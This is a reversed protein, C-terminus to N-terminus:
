RSPKTCGLSQFPHHSCTQSREEPGKSCSSTAVLCKKRLLGHSQKRSIDGQRTWEGYKWQTRSVIEGRKRKTGIVPMKSKQSRSFDLVKRSRDIDLAIALRNEYTDQDDEPTDKESFKATYLPANTGSGILGGQGDSIGEVPGTPQIIGGGVNWVAGVSAQRNHPPPHAHHPIMLVDQGSRSGRQSRAATRSDSSSILSRGHRMPRPSSVFPDPTASDRRLLKEDPTLLDPSKSLRFNRGPDQSSSRNSIYRDPSASSALHPPAANCANRLTGRGRGIGLLRPLECYPLPRSQAPYAIDLLDEVNDGDESGPPTPLYSIDDSSRGDRRTPLPTRPEQFDSHAQLMDGSPVFSEAQSPSTPPSPPATRLRKIRSGPYEPGQIEKLQLPLWPSNDLSQHSSFQFSPSTSDAHEEVSASSSHSHSM